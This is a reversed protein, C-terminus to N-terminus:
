LPSSPVTQTVHVDQSGEESDTMIVESNKPKEATHCAEEIAALAEPSPMDQLLDFVNPSVYGSSQTRAKFTKRAGVLQFGESDLTRKGKDGGRTNYPQRPPITPNHGQKAQNGANGMSVPKFLPRQVSKNAAMAVGPPQAYAPSAANLGTSGSNPPPGTNGSSPPANQGWQQSTPPKGFIQERPVLNKSGPYSPILDVQQSMTPCNRSFHGVKHCHFCAGTLNGWKLYLLISGIQPIDLEITGPFPKETNWLLCAKNRNPSKITPAYLVQGLSATIEKICPWLYSPLDIYEVWVPCQSLLAEKVQKIPQWEFVHVIQGFLIVSPQSLFADRDPAKIFLVEYLGQGAYFLKDIVPNGFGQDIALAIDHIAPLRGSFLLVVARSKFVSIQQWVINTNLSVKHEGQLSADVSVSDQLINALVVTDLDPCTEINGHLLSQAEERPDVRFASPLVSSSAM